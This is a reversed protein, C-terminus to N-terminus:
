GALRAPMSTNLKDQIYDRARVPGYKAPHAADVCTPLCDIIADDNPGSFLVLSLRRTPGNISRPPNVVRHLTSRWRDNTWRAMLDGINIVYSDAVPRVDIWEGSRTHVQLGGPADDQRLLTLGGYDSHAGYRLQGPEPEVAQAPYHVCRLTGRFRDYYPAFFEDPLDLARASLRMLVGVLRHVARYYERVAERLGAPEGPYVNNTAASRGAPLPDPPEFNIGYFVLAECLDPPVEEGRTRAVSEIGLPLYGRTKVRDPVTWKLKAALPLSFFEMLESYTRTTTVDPVGHGTVTAFGVEEFARGWERALAAQDAATGASFATLDLCPIESM